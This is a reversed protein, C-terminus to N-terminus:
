EITLFFEENKNKRQNLNKSISLLSFFQGSIIGMNKQISSRLQFLFFSKKGVDVGIIGFQFLIKPLQVDVFVRRM